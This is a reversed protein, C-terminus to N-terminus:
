FTPWAALTATFATTFYLGSEIAARPPKKSAIFSLRPLIAELSFHALKPLSRAALVQVDADEYDRSAKEFQDVAKQHEDLMLSVYQRDFAGGLRNKLENLQKQQDATLDSPMTLQKQTALDKLEDNLKRHERVMEDAFKQVRKAQAKQKAVDSLALELLGNSYANVLFDSQDKALGGKEKNSEKAVEVSDSRTSSNRCYLFVSGLTFLLLYM